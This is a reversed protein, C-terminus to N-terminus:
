RFFSSHSAHMAHEMWIRGDLLKVIAEMGTHDQEFTIAASPKDRLGPAITVETPAPIGLEAFLTLLDSETVAPPLNDLMLQM